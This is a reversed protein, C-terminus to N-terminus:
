PDGEERDLTTARRKDLQCEENWCGPFEPYGSVTSYSFPESVLNRVGKHGKSAGPKPFLSTMTLCSINYLQLIDYVSKWRTMPTYSVLLSFSITNKDLPSLTIPLSNACCIQVKWCPTQITEQSIKTPSISFHPRSLLLVHHNTASQSFVHVFPNISQHGDLSFTRTTLTLCLEAIPNVRSRNLTKLSKFLFTSSM